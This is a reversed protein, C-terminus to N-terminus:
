CISHFVLLIYNDRKQSNIHSIVKLILIYIKVELIILLFDRQDELIYSWVVMYLQPSNYYKTYVSKIWCICSLMNKHSVLCFDEYLCRRSIRYCLDWCVMLSNWMSLLCWMLMLIKWLLYWLIWSLISWGERWSSHFISVCNYRRNWERRSSVIVLSIRM